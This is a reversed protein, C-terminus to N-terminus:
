IELKATKQHQRRKFFLGGLNANLTEKVRYIFGPAFM